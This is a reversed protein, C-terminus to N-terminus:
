VKRGHLYELGTAVDLAIQAGQKYWNFAEQCPAKSNDQPMLADHLDGGQLVYHM